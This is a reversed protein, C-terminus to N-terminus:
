RKLTQYSLRALFPINIYISCSNLFFVGLTYHAEKLSPAADVGTTSM